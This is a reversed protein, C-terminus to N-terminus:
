RGKRIKFRRRRNYMMMSRIKNQSIVLRELPVGTAPHEAARGTDIFGWPRCSRRINRVGTGGPSDARVNFQCHLGTGLDIAPM